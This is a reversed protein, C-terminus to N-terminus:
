DARRGVLLLSGGARLSVRREVILWREANLIPEFLGNLLGPELEQRLNYPRRTVRQFFRSILMLPLLFTVFSSAFVIEFGAERVRKVLERRTYRRRHHAFTDAGSWLWKHQPVLLVIGGRPKVARHMRMLADEDDDVHELVDLACVVDFEADFSLERVDLRRLEADPVRERAVRLGEEFPDIGVLRFRPYADRIASLVFGSGCGVELLSTMRPFYRGLIAVILQNRARFWFSRPEARSLLEFLEADYGAEGV